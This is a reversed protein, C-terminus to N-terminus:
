KVIALKATTILKGGNLVSCFYVGSTYSGLPVTIKNYQGKLDYVDKVKGMIDLIKLQSGEGTSDLQVVIQVVNTAPNPILALSQKTVTRVQDLRAPTKKMDTKGSISITPIYEEYPQVNNLALLAKARLFSPSGGNESMSQLIGLRVSDLHDISVTDRSIDLELRKLKIVNSDLIGDATLQALLSDVGAASDIRQYYDVLSLKDAEEGTQPLLWMIDEFRGERAWADKIDQTYAYKKSILSSVQSQISREPSISDQMSELDDLEGSSFPLDSAVLLAIMSDSLSSNKVLIDYVHTFAYGALPHKVIQQLVTESVADLALLSDLVPAIGSSDGETLKLAIIWHDTEGGDILGKGYAIQNTYGSIAALATDRSIGSDIEAIRKNRVDCSVPLSILATNCPTIRPAWFTCAPYFAGPSSGNTPYIYGNFGASTSLINISGTSACNSFRNDGPSSVDEVPIGSTCTGQQILYGSEYGSLSYPLLGLDIVPNNLSNCLFSLGKFIHNGSQNIETGNTGEAVLGILYGEVVNNRVQEPNYGHNAVVIGFTQAGSATTGYLTNNQCFYASCGDIYIGYIAETVDPVTNHTIQNHNVHTNDTGQLYIARNCNTFSNYECTLPQNINDFSSTSTAFVGRYYNSFTNGEGSYQSGLLYTASVSRIATGREKVPWASNSTFTNGYFQMGHHDWLAVTEVPKRNTNTFNCYAIVSASYDKTYKSFGLSRKNDVFNCWEAYIIGGSHSLDLIGKRIDYPKSAMLGWEMNKFTSHSATVVGHKSQDYQDQTADGWVEIGYWMDDCTEVSELTANNIILNAGPEVVIKTAHTPSLVDDDDKNNDDTKLHNFFQLTCNEITLTAGQKVHVTGYVKGNSNWTSNTTIDIDDGVHGSIPNYYDENGLSCLGKSQCNDNLKVLVDDDLNNSNNGCFVLSGPDSGEVIKYFCEERKIDGQLRPDGINTYTNSGADYTGPNPPPTSESITRSWRLNDNMDYKAVFADTNWRETNYNGSFNSQGINFNYSTYPSLPESSPVTTVLAYGGDSMNTLGIQLDTANVGTSAAVPKTVPSTLDSNLIVLEASGTGKANEGCLICGGKLGGAVIQSNASSNKLIVSYFLGQDEYCPVTFGPGSCNGGASSTFSHIPGPYFSFDNANLKLILLNAKTNNNITQNIIRYTGEFGSIYLAPPSAATNLVLSKGASEQEVESPLQLQGPEFFRNKVISGDTGNIETVFLNGKYAPISSYTQNSGNIISGTIIYNGATGSKIIDNAKGTFPQLDTNGSTPKEEWGYLYDWVLNGDANIKAIYIYTNAIDHAEISSISYSPNTSSLARYPCNKFGGIDGVALYGGDETQIVQRFRGGGGASGDIMPDGRFGFVHHWLQNGDLDTLAMSALTNEHGWEGPRDFDDVKGSGIANNVTNFGNRLIVGPLSSYGAAVYGNPNNNSAHSLKVAYFWDEGSLNDLNEEWTGYYWPDWFWYYKNWAVTGSTCDPRPPAPKPTLTGLVIVPWGRAATQALRNSYSMSMYATDGSAPLCTDKLLAIDYELRIVSGAKISVPAAVPFSPTSTQYAPIDDGGEYVRVSIISICNDHHFKGGILLTDNYDITGSTIFNAKVTLTDGFAISDTIGVLTDDLSTISFSDQINITSITVTDLGKCQNSDTVQLIYATTDTPTAVPYALASDDLTISPTWKYLYPPKGTPPIWINGLRISHGLIISSDGGAHVQLPLRNTIVYSAIASCGCTNTVTVTYTGGMTPHITKTTDGTSWVYHNNLGPVTDATLTATDGPCISDKLAHIATTFNAWKSCDPYVTVSDLSQSGYTSGTNAYSVFYVKQPSNVTDLLTPHATLTTGSGSAGSTGNVNTLNTRYWNTANSAPKTLLINASDGSCLSPKNNARTSVAPVSTTGLIFLTMSQMVSEYTHESGDPWYCHNESVAFTKYTTDIVTHIPSVDGLFTTDGPGKSKYWKIKDAVPLTIIPTGPVNYPGEHLDLYVTSGKSYSLNNNSGVFTRTPVFCHNGAAATFTSPMVILYGVYSDGAYGGWPTSRITYRIRQPVNTTNTLVYDFVQSVASYNATTYAASTGTVNANDRYFNMNIMASTDSRPIIDIGTGSAITDLYKLPIIHAAFSSGISFNAVLTYASYYKGGSCSCTNWSRALYKTPTDAVASISYGAGVYTTDTGVVKYWDVGSAVVTTDVLFQMHAGRAYPGVDTTGNPWQLPKSPFSCHDGGSATGPLVKIYISKSDFYINGYKLARVVFRVTQTTGTNNTLTIGLPGMVTSGTISGSVNATDDRLYQLYLPYVSSNTYGFINTQTGSCIVSDYTLWYQPVSPSDVITVTSMLTYGSYYTGGCTCNNVNRCIFRSTTDMTFAMTDGSGVYTTDGASKVRYWQRGDVSVSPNTAWLQVTANKYMTVYFPGGYSGPASPASCHYCQSFAQISSLVVSILFLAKLAKSFM